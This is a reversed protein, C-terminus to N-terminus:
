WNIPKMGFLLSNKKFNTTTRDKQNLSIIEGEKTHIVLFPYDLSIYARELSSEGGKSLFLPTFIIGFNSPLASRRRLIFSEISHLPLM